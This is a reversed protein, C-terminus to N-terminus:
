AAFHVLFSNNCTRFLGGCIFCSVHLMDVVVLGSM